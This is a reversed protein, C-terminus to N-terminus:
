TTSGTDPDGPPKLDIIDTGPGVPCLRSSLGMMWGGAQGLAGHGLGGCFPGSGQPEWKTPALLLELASGQCM